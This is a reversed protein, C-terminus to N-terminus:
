DDVVGFDIALLKNGSGAVKGTNLEDVDAAEVKELERGTAM